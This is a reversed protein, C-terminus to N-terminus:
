KGGSRSPSDVLYPPRNPIADDLKQKRSESILLRREDRAERRIALSKQAGIRVRHAIEVDCVRQRPATAPQEGVIKLVVRVFVLIGVLLRAGDEDFRRVRAVARIQKEEIIAIKADLANECRRAFRRVAVREADVLVRVAAAM